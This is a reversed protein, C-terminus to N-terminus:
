INALFRSKSFLLLLVLASLTQKYHYNAYCLLHIIALSWRKQTIYSQSWGKLIPKLEDNEAEGDGEEKGNQVRESM